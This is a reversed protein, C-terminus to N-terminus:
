CCTKTSKKNSRYRRYFFFLEKVRTKILDLEFLQLISACRVLTPLLIIDSEFSSIGNVIYNSIILQMMIILWNLPNAAVHM